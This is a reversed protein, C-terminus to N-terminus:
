EDSEKEESIYGSKNMLEEFSDWANKARKDDLEGILGAKLLCLSFIGKPTLTYREKGDDMNRWGANELIEKIVSMGNKFHSDYKSNYVDDFYSIMREICEEETDGYDIDCRELNGVLPRTTIVYGEFEDDEYWIIKCHKKVFDYKTM